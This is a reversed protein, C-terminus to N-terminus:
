CIRELSVEPWDPAGCPIGANNHVIDVGGYITEVADFMGRVGAPTSVDAKFFTAAGGADKILRVTDAGGDADIDVVLVAAGEAALAQATARGMGSGAGTVLAVKGKINM